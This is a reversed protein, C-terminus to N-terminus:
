FTEKELVDDAVLGTEIVATAYMAPKGILNEVKLLEKSKFKTKFNVVQQLYKKILSVKAPSENVIGKELTENLYNKAKAQCATSGFEFGIRGGDASNPACKPDLKAALEGLSKYINNRM